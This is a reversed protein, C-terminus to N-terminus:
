QFSKLSIDFILISNAPISGQKTDGYGLVSPIYFIVRSGVTIEPLGIKLGDILGFVGQNTLTNQEIIASPKNATLTQLKYDFAALSYPTPRSGNGLTKIRYWVGSPLRVANTYSSDQLFQGIATSDSKLQNQDATSRIVTDLKVNYVLISNPPVTSTGAEGYGYKSPLFVTAESGKLIVSYIYKLGFPEVDEINDDIVGAPEFTDFTGSSSFIRGVYTAKIRQGEKPPANDGYHRIIFRVGTSNDYLVNPTGQAALYEDILKVDANLQKNPDETSTCGQLMLSLGALLVMSLNLFFKAKM